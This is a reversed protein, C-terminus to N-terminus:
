AHWGSTLNETEKILQHISAPQRFVVEQEEPKLALTFKLILHMIKETPLDELKRKELEALLAEIRRGFLEIRKERLAFYKEQLAESHIAQLNQIEITFEKSLAILTSKSVQLKDAIKAYSLGQARLQIFQDKVSQDISM